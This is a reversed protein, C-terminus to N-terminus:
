NRAASAALRNSCATGGTKGAQSVLVLDNTAIGLANTLVLSTLSGSGAIQRPVGGAAGSGNMVVLVDSGGQSKSKAILVPAVRLDSATVSAFPAPLATTRPLINSVNLKCALIGRDPLYAASNAFGSGAGRIARDLAYFAYAGTQEADNVSTTTRKHNESVILMGTIALTLGLGVTLAVMLEILTMGRQGAAGPAPGGRGDWAM